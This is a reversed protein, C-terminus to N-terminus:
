VSGEQDRVADFVGDRVHYIRDAVDFWRDDHTVCILVKGQDRLAPLIKEYFISRFHPDQDAAWEDLVLVPKDELQAVIFALRKRQGQSLATTSFAEGELTVKHSIEMEHILANVREPDVPDIGYLEGFLHYDSLVTAFRDRYAQIDEISVRSGNVVIEGEDAWRLGTLLAIITSKGAGNGGTIFTIEGRKFSATLPGVAFGGTPGPYTFRVDRLSIEEINELAKLFETRNQGAAAAITEDRKQQQDLADRLQRELDSIKRIASEVDNFSPVSMVTGGIPGILFMTATTVEVVVDHYGSTFIPVIFVMAAMMAYFALQISATERSWQSKAAIKAACVRESRDCLQALVADRRLANMKVEKFGELLDGLGGFLKSEDEMAARTAEHIRNVRHLHILAGMAALGGLMAFAFMSLWALYFSVCVILVLQQVGSLLIPLSNSITQMESTIADHVAGQGVLRLTDSDSKRVRDFLSARYHCLIDEVETAVMVDSRNQAWIFGGIALLMLLLLLPNPQGDEVQQAALNVVVLVLTTGIAAMGSLAVVTRINLKGRSRLIDLILM